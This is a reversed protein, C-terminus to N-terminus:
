ADLDEPEAWTLVYAVKPYMMNSMCRRCDGEDPTIWCGKIRSWFQIVGDPRQRHVAGMRPREAVHEIM